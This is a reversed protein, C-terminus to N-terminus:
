SDFQLTNLVADKNIITNFVLVGIISVVVFEGLAVYAMSLLLPANLLYNLMWGIIIGNFLVPWLSSLILTKLTRGFYRATYSIATVSLFTAFTGLGYDLPGLPSGLNAIFCGLVLGPIYKRDVFALLVLVESLRFQVQGYSIPQLVFTLAAYIAAIVGTKVIFNTSIKQM